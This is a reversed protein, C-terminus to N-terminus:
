QMNYGTVEVLFKDESVKLKSAADASVKLIVDKQTDGAPVKGVVKVYIAEKSMLNTVKLIAGADAYNYLALYQNGPNDSQMFTCIGRYVMKKRGQEAYRSFTSSYESPAINENKVTETSLAKPASSSEKTAAEPRPLFPNEDGNPQPKEAKVPAPKSEKTETAKIQPITEVPKAPEKKIVPPESSLYDKGQETTPTAKPKPKSEAAPEKATPAYMADKNKTPIILKQGLKLKMDDALHNADKIQRWTLGNAKAIAYVTEGKQVIHVSPDENDSAPEPKSEPKPAPKTVAKTEPKATSKETGAAPKATPATKETKATAAAGSSAPIAIKQGIKLKFNAGLSANAKELAEVTVHYKKSISYLTEGKAVQHTTAKTQAMAASAICIFLISILVKQM